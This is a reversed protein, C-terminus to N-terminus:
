PKLQARIEGGKNAATHVNVYTNGAKYASYQSESLKAGAPISWVNASTQVMPVIVPGNAGSAAEHIHAAVGTMGTTTVSGSVTRDDKITITGTGSASTGVPPVEQSGSLTLRDAHMMTRMDACGALVTVAVAAAVVFVKRSNNLLATM